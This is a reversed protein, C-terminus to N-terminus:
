SIQNRAHPQSSSLALYKMMSVQCPCLWKHGRTRPACFHDDSWSFATGYLFVALRSETNKQKPSSDQCGMSRIAKATNWLIQQACLLLQHFHM